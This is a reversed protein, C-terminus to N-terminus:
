VHLAKLQKPRRLGFDSGFEFLSAVFVQMQRSAPLPIFRCLRTEAVELCGSHAAYERDVADFVGGLM